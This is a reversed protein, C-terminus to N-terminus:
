QDVAFQILRIPVGRLRHSLAYHCVILQEFFEALSFDHEDAPVESLLVTPIIKDGIWNTM